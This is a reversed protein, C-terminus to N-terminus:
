KGGQINQKAVDETISMLADLIIKMEYEKEDKNHIMELYQTCLLGHVGKLRGVIDEHTQKSM